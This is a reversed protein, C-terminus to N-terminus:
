GYNLAWQRLNAQNEWHDLLPMVQEQIQIPKPFWGMRCEKSQSSPSLPRQVGAGSASEKSALPQGGHSCSALGGLGRRDLGARKERRDIRDPDIDSCGRGQSPRDTPLLHLKAVWPHRGPIALAPFSGLCGRGGALAPLAPLAPPTDQPNAEQLQSSLAFPFYISSPQSLIPIVEFGHM